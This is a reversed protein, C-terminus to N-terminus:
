IILGGESEVARRAHRASHASCTSQRAAEKTALKEDHMAKVWNLACLRLTEGPSIKAVTMKLGETGDLETDDVFVRVDNLDPDGVFTLDEDVEPTTELRLEVDLLELLGSAEVVGDLELSEELKTSEAVSPALALVMELDLIL